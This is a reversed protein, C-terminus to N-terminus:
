PLLMVSLVVQMRGECRWSCLRGKSRRAALRPGLKAGDQGEVDTTGVALIDHRFRMTGSPQYIPPHTSPHRQRTLSKISCRSCLMTLELGTRRCVGRNRGAKSSSGQLPTNCFRPQLLRVGLASGRRTPQAKKKKMLLQPEGERREAQHGHVSEQCRKSGRPILKLWPKSWGRAAVGM